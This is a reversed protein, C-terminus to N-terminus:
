PPGWTRSPTGPSVSSQVDGSQPDNSSLLEDVNEEGDAEVGANEDGDDEGEAAEEAGDVGGWCCKM